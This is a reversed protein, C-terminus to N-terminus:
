GPLVKFQNASPPVGGNAYILASIIVALIAGLIEGVILGIMLPKLNAYTKEGGYKMVGTKILWGVLFSAAFMQAAWSTWVVFMVPHFPWGTFRLRLFTFLIVLGAGALFSMVLKPEPSINYFRELGSIAAAEETLGQSDLKYKIELAEKFSRKAIIESFEDAVMNAGEKYQLFLTVPIAVALGVLIAVVGWRALPAPNVKRLQGLKLANVIYPMLAERTDLFLVASLLGVIVAVEPGFNKAGLFGLMVAAPSWMVQIWFLGTEALVRAMVVYSAAIGVAFFLTLILDLGTSLIFGIFIGYAIIFVRAGIVSAPDLAENAKLFCAKRVVNVYYFRGTYLIGALAGFVAGAVVFTGPSSVGGGTLSIGMVSFSSVVTMWLYPAIGVSSSVEKSLFYAVGIVSFYMTVNLKWGWGGASRFTDPFVETLPGFNFSRSIKVLDPFIVASYNILHLAAVAAVGFWFLKNQFIPNETGDPKPLIENVVTALPYPLHEHDSWQRHVVLALGFLAVWLAIIVPLWFSYTPLWAEWPIDTVSFDRNPPVGQTFRDLYRGDEGPDALMRDPAYDVIKNERWGPESQEFRHPLMLVPNFLRQLSSSPIVCASLAIFMIVALESGRLALGSKLRSLLPNLFILFIVLLGYVAVPMHNGVLFTQNLVNDNFYTVGCLFVVAALGTLIARATM